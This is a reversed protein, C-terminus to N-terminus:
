ADMEFADKEQRLLKEGQDLIAPADDVDRCRPSASGRGSPRDVRRYLSRDFHQRPMECFLQSWAPGGDIDNCWAWHFGIEAAADNAVIRNDVLHNGFICCQAPCTERFIEARHDRRKERFLIM